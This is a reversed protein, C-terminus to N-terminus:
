RRARKRCFLFNKYGCTLQRFFSVTLLSFDHAPNQMAQYTHILVYQSNVCAIYSFSQLCEIIKAKLPLIKHYVSM